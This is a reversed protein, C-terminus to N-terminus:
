EHRLANAPQTRAARWAPYLTSLCALVFAMGCIRALDYPDVATPLEDIYYVRADILTTGLVAELGRVLATLHEAILLGAALGALTGLVGIATGQLVFAVLVGRPPFGLTRLIAIDGQKERVLMVLTSVINFAAVAVVLLLLVFLIGKTTQISRFFNAHNRTWDSIYFGGGLAVAVDRVTRGARWPDEVELRLGSVADGLRFLRAADGMHVLAYNRDYEYMGSDLLGVVTFRRLRPVVGAPTATGQPAALVVRDGVGLGLEEALARGLVIGFRGAALKALTGPPVHEDVNSVRPEEEPLVGRVLAGSVRPGAVLMAREEVFPAAAIVGPEREVRARVTRWAALPEDVGTLTAHATMGLIRSRLEREFGNMVSLVVILVAVGVAIGLVGVGAIFSLFREGTRARLYRWALRAELPIRAALSV